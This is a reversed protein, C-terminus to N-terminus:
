RMQPDPIISVPIVVSTSGAAINATGSTATYDSGATATDNATAYNVTINQSSPNALSITFFAVGGTEGVSVDDISIVPLADDNAITVTAQNDTIIANAPATLNAFFTEDPEYIDDAIIPVNFTKPTGDTPAWALTGSAPLYDTGFTATDDATSYGVTM